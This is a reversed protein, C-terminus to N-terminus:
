SKEKRKLKRHRRAARKCKPCLCGYNQYASLTGHKKPERTRRERATDRAARRCEPCHCGGNYRSVTGHQAERRPLPLDHQAFWRRLTSPALGLREAEKRASSKGAVIRAHAKVREATVKARRAAGRHVSVREGILQQVRQRSVGFQEGVEQLTHGKEYMAIMKETRDSM